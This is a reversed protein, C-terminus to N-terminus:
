CHGGPAVWLWQPATAPVGVANTSDNLQNFTELQDEGFVDYWGAVHIAPIAAKRGRDWGSLGDAGVTRPNIFLCDALSCLLSDPPACFPPLTRERVLGVAPEM